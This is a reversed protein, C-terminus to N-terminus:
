CGAKTMQTFKDWSIEGQEFLKLLKCDLMWTMDPNGYVATSVIRRVELNILYDSMTPLFETTLITYEFGVAIDRQSYYETLIDITTGEPIPRDLKDGFKVCIRETSVWTSSEHALSVDGRYTDFILNSRLQEALGDRHAQLHEKTM